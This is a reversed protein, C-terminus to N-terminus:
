LTSRNILWAPITDDWDTDDVRAHLKSFGKWERVVREQVKGCGYCIRSQLMQVESLRATNYWVMWRHHGLLHWLWAM